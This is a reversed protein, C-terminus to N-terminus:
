NNTLVVKIQNLTYIFSMLYMVIAISSLMTLWTWIIIYHLWWTYTGILFKCRSLLVVQRSVVSSFIFTHISALALDFFRPLSGSDVKAYDSGLENELLNLLELSDSSM